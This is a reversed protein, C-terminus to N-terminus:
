GFMSLSGRNGEDSGLNPLWIGIARNVILQTNLINKLLNYFENISPIQNGEFYLKDVFYFLNNEPDISYFVNRALAITELDQKLNIKVEEEKEKLLKLDIEDLIIHFSIKLHNIGKEKLIALLFGIQEGEENTINPFRIEFGFDLADDNIEKEIFCDNQIYEQIKKKLKDNSNDKSLDM